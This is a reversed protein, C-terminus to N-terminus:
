FQLDQHCMGYESHVSGVQMPSRVYQAASISDHSWIFLARNRRHGNGLCVAKEINLPRVAKRVIGVEKERYHVLNEGRPKHVSTFVPDRHKQM